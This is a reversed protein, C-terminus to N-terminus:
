AGRAYPAYYRDHRILEDAELARMLHRAGTWAPGNAPSVITEVRVASGTATTSWTRTIVHGGAIAALLPQFLDLSGVPQDEYTERGVSLDFRQDMRLVLEFPCGEPVSPVVAARWSAEDGGIEASTVARLGALWAELAAVTSRLRTKYVDDSLM